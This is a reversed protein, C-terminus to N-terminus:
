SLSTTKQLLRESFCFTTEEMYDLLQVDLVAFIYVHQFTQTVFANYM